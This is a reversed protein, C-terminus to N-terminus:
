RAVVHAQRLIAPPIELGIRRATDLNISLSFEAMEVPIEAPPVGSLVLLGQHAAQEGVERLDFGYSMLAGQEVGTRHPMSLAIGRGIAFEALEHAHSAIEPDAPVLIARTGEPLHPLAAKLGEWGDVPDFVVSLGLTRAATELVPLSALPSPDTRNYPVYVGSLGPMLRMLWELRRAEQTGFTVGTARGGPQRLTHVLGTQLPNSAPAFIVPVNRERGADLAASAARTTLALILDPRADVLRRAEAALADDGSAVGRFLYAVEVGGLRKLGARFGDYAPLAVAANSLVGVVQVRGAAELGLPRASLAALAALALALVAFKWWRM